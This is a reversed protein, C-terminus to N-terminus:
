TGQKPGVYRARPRIASGTEVQELMHALWGVARALSFIVLPAVESMGYVGTLAALAFDINPQEGIHPEAALRLGAFPAPLNIRSLLEAARPDGHRYLRHGFGPVARGEGLWESLRFSQEASTIALDKALASVALAASGHLPGSLAALGSLLGAALSAGTSVTVRVAFTSANLEHDALLVLARRLHDAAAPRGFHQALRIHLPGEGPGLVAVCFTAFVEAARERLAARGVGHSPPDRTARAALTAFAAALPLSGGTGPPALPAFDASPLVVTGWLLSAIDELTATRSLVTADQGRYLLRGAVIGSISSVLVPEGWDMAESALQAVGPRGRSRRSLREIDGADYLSRRPDAPDPRAAIRGRSVSAYLTQPKVRLQRLAEEASVWM